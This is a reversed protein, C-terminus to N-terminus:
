HYDMATKAIMAEIFSEDDINMVRAPQPSAKRCDNWTTEVGDPYAIVFKYQDALMDFRYGTVERTSAGDGGSGHFMFLLPAGPKLDRPLYLVYSRQLGKVAIDVRKVAGTLRPQAALAGTGFIWWAGAFMLAAFSLGLGVRWIVKRSMM